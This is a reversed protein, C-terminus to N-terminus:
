VGEGDPPNRTGWLQVMSQIYRVMMLFGGVPFSLYVWWLPIEMAPSVQHNAIM